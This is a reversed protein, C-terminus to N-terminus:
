ETYIKKMLDLDVKLENKLYNDIGGYKSDILDFATKLYEKRVTMLSALHPEKEVIPRYKDAVLDVSLLYDGYITERDVGLASLFMAAAFGTRDKGASCHFLLPAKERDALVNFFEIYQPQAKDALYANIDKMAQPGTDDNIQSLTIVNGADIDLVRIEEVTAPKKTPESTRENEARFDVITKLGRKEFEELGKPTLGNLAGSRYVLGYRVTKGDKTKYGGLDRVNFAGDVPIIRKKKFAFVGILAALCLCALVIFLKM